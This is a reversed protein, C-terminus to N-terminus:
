APVGEQSWRSQEIEYDGRITLLIKNLDSVSLWQNNNASSYEFDEGCPKGPRGDNLHENKYERNQTVIFLDKFEM